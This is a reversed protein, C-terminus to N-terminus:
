AYSYEVCLCVQGERGIEFFLPMLVVLSTTAVVFAFKGGYKYGVKLGTRGFDLAYVGGAYFFKGTRQFFGKLGGVPRSSM